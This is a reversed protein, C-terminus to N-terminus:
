ISIADDYGLWHTDTVPADYDNFGSLGVPTVDYDALAFLNDINASYILSSLQVGMPKPLSGQVIFAEALQESGVSSDFFYSMRMDKHDFVRIVDPFFTFLLNQISYLTNDSQNQIFKMKVMVRFDDDDLEIWGSFTLARRQVGAYKGLIDLQAGVATDIDFASMVDNPLQDMVVLSALLKITAFAKPKDRYQIILLKAYYELIELTTM